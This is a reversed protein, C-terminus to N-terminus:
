VTRATDAVPQEARQVMNVAPTGRDELDPAALRSPQESPFAPLCLGAYAGTVYTTWASWDAGNGSILVAARANGAPDLTALYGHSANIQWLGYDDTPSIAWSRGGSEAKAIEAALFANGPNGGAADWLTELGQCSYVGPSSYRSVVRVSVPHQRQWLEHRRLQALYALHRLHALHLEHLHHRSVTVSHSTTVPTVTVADQPHTSFLAASLILAPLM